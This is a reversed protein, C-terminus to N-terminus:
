ARRALQLAQREGVEAHPGLREQTALAEQAAEGGDALLRRAGPAPQDIRAVDVLRLEHAVEAVEHAHRRAGEHSAVEGEHAGGGRRALEAREAQEDDGPEDPRGMFVWAASFPSAGGRWGKLVSDIIARVLRAM